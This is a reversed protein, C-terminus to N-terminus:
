RLVIPIEANASATSFNQQKPKLTRTAMEERLMSPDYLMERSASFTVPRDPNSEGSAFSDGLATILLDEVVVNPDRLESGDPLQVSVAVGSAPRNLSFPVRAITLKNKCSQKRTEIRFVDAFAWFRLM